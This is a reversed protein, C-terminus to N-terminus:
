AANISGRGYCFRRGIDASIQRGRRVCTMSTASSFTRATRLFNKEDSFIVKSREGNWAVRDIAFKMGAEKHIELLHLTKM